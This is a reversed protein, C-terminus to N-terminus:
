RGFRCDNFLSKSKRCIEAISCEGVVAYSSDHMRVLQKKRNNIINLPLVALESFKVEYHVPVQYLCKCMTGPVPLSLVCVIRSNRTIRRFSTRAYITGKVDIKCNKTWFSLRKGKSPWDTNCHHLILTEQESMEIVYLHRESHYSIDRMQRSPLLRLAQSGDLEM